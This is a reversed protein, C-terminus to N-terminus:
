CIRFEVQNEHKEECDWFFSYSGMGDKDLVLRKDFNGKHSKLSDRIRKHVVCTIRIVSLIIRDIATSVCRLM